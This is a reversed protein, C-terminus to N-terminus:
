AGAPHRRRAAVCRGVCPVGGQMGEFRRAADRGNSLLMRESCPRSLRAARNTLSLLVFHAVPRSATALLAGWLGLLLSLCWVPDV